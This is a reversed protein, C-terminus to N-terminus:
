ANSTRTPRASPLVMAPLTFTVTTGENLRSEIGLAGGHLEVLHKTLPLGLGTGEYRRSLTSDVQRFPKLAQPIQEPTMGIGTDRVSVEIGVPVRCATVHIEGGAPTFKVANSLLNIMIQRLRRDDARVAPLNSAIASSLKSGAREAQPGILHMASVILLGLDVNDDQLEFQKAELKTLDLIENILKLLHMGSDFVHAAYERYRDHLPGFTGGKIVESFGIIANLPTRLEHSMNALFESKTRNATEAGVKALHLKEAKLANDRFVRLARALLGIEDSRHEFPIERVLDGDAVHRMTDTFKTIPQVVGKFVYYAALLGVSSFLVAFFIAAYFAREAAKLQAAVHQDALEFAIKAVQYMSQQAPLVLTRWQAVSIDVQAGAALNEVVANRIPRFEVFYLRTATDVAERLSPPTTAQEADDRVLKWMADMRDVFAAFQRTQEPTLKTGRLMADRVLLRDDGSEARVAWAIQKIKIMQALFADNASLEAELQRSLQDLARVVKANAEVWRVHFDGSRQDLPQRLAQDAEHRMATWAAWNKLVEGKGSTFGAPDKAGLKASIGEIARESQARYNSLDKQTGADVPQPLILAANVAGRELRVNLTATFLDKSISILTSTREAQQQAHLAQIAYVGFITVLVLTLLGTIAQLLVGITFYRRM